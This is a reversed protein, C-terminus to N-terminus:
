PANLALVVGLGLTVAALLIWWVLKRRGNPAASVEEEVEEKVVSEEEVKLNRGLVDPVMALRAETAQRKEEAYEPTDEEENDQIRHGKKKLKKFLLTEMEEETYSLKGYPLILKELVVLARGQDKVREAVEPDQIMKALLKNKDDGQTLFLARAARKVNKQRM